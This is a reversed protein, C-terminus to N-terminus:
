GVAKMFASLFLVMNEMIVNSINAAILNLGSANITLVQCHMKSM